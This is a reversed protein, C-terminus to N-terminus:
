KESRTDQGAICYAKDVKSIKEATDMQQICFSMSPMPIATIQHNNYPTVGTNSVMILWAAAYFQMIM